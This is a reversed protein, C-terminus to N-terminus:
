GDHLRASAHQLADSGATVAFVTAVMRTARPALVMGTTFATAVWVSACFPCTALEGVAHKLPTDDRVEEVLEGAGGPRVYRVFPARLASTVAGKTLLRSVKHTAAALLLVDEVRTREPLARGRLIRALGTFAAAYVALLVAYGELPRAEGHAYDEVVEHMAM